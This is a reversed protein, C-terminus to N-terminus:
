LKAPIAYLEIRPKNKDYHRSLFLRSIQSDDNWVIGTLADLYLKNMNDLDRRRKDKFYFMVGVEIDGELPKEKWQNKAELQYVKKINKGEATM